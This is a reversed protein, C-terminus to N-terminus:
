SVPQQQLYKFIPHVFSTTPIPNQSILISVSFTWSDAEMPTNNCLNNLCWADWLEHVTQGGDGAERPSEQDRIELARCCELRVMWIGCAMFNLWSVETDLTGVRASSGRTGCVCGYQRLHWKLMKLVLMEWDSSAASCFEQCRRGAFGSLASLSVYFWFKAGDNEKRNFM